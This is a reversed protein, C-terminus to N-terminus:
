LALRSLLHEIHNAQAEAIRVLDGLQQALSCTLPTEACAGGAMVGVPPEPRLVPEMSSGLEQLLKANRETVHRLREIVSGVESAPVALRTNAGSGSCKAATAYGDIMM